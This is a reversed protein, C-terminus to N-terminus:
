FASICFQLMYQHAPPKTMLNNLVKALRHVIAGEDM